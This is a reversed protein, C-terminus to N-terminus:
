VHANFLSVYRTFFGSQLESRSCSCGPLSLTKKMEECYSTSAESHTFETTSKSGMEDLFLPAIKPLHENEFELLREAAVTDCWLSSSLFSHM